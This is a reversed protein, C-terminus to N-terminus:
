PKKMPPRPNPSLPDTRERDIKRVRGPERHGGPNSTPAEADSYAGRVPAVDTSGALECGRRRGTLRATCPVLSRDRASM